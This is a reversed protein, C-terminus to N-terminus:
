ATRLGERWFAARQMKVFTELKEPTDIAVATVKLYREFLAPNSQALEKGM